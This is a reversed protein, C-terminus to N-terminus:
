GAQRLSGASAARLLVPPLVRRSGRAVLPRACDSGYCRGHRIPRISVKSPPATRQGRANERPKGIITEHASDDTIDPVAPRHRDNQLPQLPQLVAAIIRRPQRDIALIVVQGHAAGLAFQAIQFIGDTQARHIAREADAVRPPGRMAPGGFLVSVRVAIALAVQHHHVVADDLVVQRELMLQFRFAVHEAGFGVGLDDGVQDLLVEPAVQFLRYPLGDRFQRAYERQGHNRAGIRLLDDGRAVARRHDDADAVVFVEDCGVHGGDEAVRAVHKEQGIAIHRDERRGAHPQAIELAPGDVALNSVHQPVGDHRFLAAVLM